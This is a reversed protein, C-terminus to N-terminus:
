TGILEPAFHALTATVGVEISDLSAILPLGNDLEVRLSPEVTIKIQPRTVSPETTNDEIPPIYVTHVIYDHAVIVLNNHKDENSMRVLDTTWATRNYPQLSEIYEAHADSLGQLSTKRQKQFEGLSPLVPFQTRRKGIGSDLEALQGVLYDLCSRFSNVAEGVLICLHEGIPTNASTVFAIQKSEGHKITTVTSEIHTAAAQAACIKQAMTKIEGLQEKARDLKRYADTLSPM